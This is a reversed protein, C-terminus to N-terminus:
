IELEVLFFFRKAIIVVQLHGFGFMSQTYRTNDFFLPTSSLLIKPKIEKSLDYFFIMVLKM